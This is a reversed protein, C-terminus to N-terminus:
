HVNNPRFSLYTKLGVSDTTENMVSNKGEDPALCTHESGATQSPSPVLKLDLIRRRRRSLTDHVDVEVRNCM